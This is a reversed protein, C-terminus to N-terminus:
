PRRLYDDLDEQRYRWKNGAKFPRIQGERALRRVTEPHLNLYAAAQETTMLPSQEATM